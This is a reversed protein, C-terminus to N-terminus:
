TVIAKYLFGDKEGGAPYKSQDDDAVCSKDTKRLNTLYDCNIYHTDGYGESGNGYYLWTGVGWYKNSLNTTSIITH